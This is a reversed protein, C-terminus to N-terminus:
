ACRPAPAPPRRPLGGSAPWRRRRKERAAATACYGLGAQEARGRGARLAALGGAGKRIAATLGPFDACTGVLWSPVLNTDADLATWTWVDGYGFTGRKEEPINKAKAYCFSWIEDLQLRKCQLNRLTRDQFEECVQGLEVLLKAVTNKAVGTMRVTSRINCGEVLASVVACRKEIPLKNMSVNYAQATLCTLVM